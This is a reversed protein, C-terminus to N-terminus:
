TKQKEVTVLLLPPFFFSFPLHFFFFSSFRFLPAEVGCGNSGSDVDGM